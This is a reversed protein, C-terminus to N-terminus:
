RAPSLARATLWSKAQKRAAIIRFAAELAARDPAHCQSAPESDPKSADHDTAGPEPGLRLARAEGVSLDSCSADYRWIREGEARYLMYLYSAEGSPATVRTQGVFLGEGAGQLRHLSESWTEGSADRFVYGGSTHVVIETEPEAGGEEHLSLEIRKAEGFLPTGALPDFLPGTSSFVCATSMAAALIVAAWRWKGAM